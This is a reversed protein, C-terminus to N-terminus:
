IYIIEQVAVDFIAISHSGGQVGVQNCNWLVLGDRPSMITSSTFSGQPTSVTLTSPMGTFCTISQVGFELWRPCGGHWGGRCDGFSLRGM